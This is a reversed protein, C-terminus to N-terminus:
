LLNAEALLRRAHEVPVGFNSGGYGPIIATNIAVADGNM